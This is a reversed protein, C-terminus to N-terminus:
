AKVARVTITVPFLPDNTDLQRARLEEYAMGTLFAIATLVNGQSKVEVGQGFVERFLRLASADTFRWFDAGERWIRSVAPLTALLVGGPRLVRHATAIAGRVDYIIHLTQTLIFCDFADAPLAEGTALDDVFTANENAPDIDLVDAQTV